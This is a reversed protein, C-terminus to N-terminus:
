AVLQQDIIIEKNLTCKAFPVQYLQGHNNLYQMDQFSICPLEVLDVIRFTVKDHTSQIAVKNIPCALYFTSPRLMRSVM